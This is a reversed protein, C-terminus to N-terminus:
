RYLDRKSLSKKPRTYTSSSALRTRLILTELEIQVLELTGSNLGPPPPGLTPNGCLDREEGELAHGIRVLVVPEALVKIREELVGIRHDGEVAEEEVREVEAELRADGIADNRADRGGHVGVLRPEGIPAGEQAAGRVRQRIRGRQREQVAHVRKTDRVVKERLVARWLGPEEGVVRAEHVAGGGLLDEVVPFGLGFDLFRDM